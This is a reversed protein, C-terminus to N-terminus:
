KKRFIVAVIILVVAVGVWFLPNEFIAPSDNGDLDVDIDLGDQASLMVSSLTSLIFIPIRFILKNM